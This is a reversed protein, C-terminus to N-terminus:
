NAIKNYKHMCFVHLNIKRRKAEQIVTQFYYIYDNWDHTFINISQATLAYHKIETLLLSPDVIKFFWLNMKMFYLSVGTAPDEQIEIRANSSQKPIFELARFRNESVILDIEHILLIHLYTKM